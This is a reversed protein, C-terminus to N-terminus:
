CCVIDTEMKSEQIPSDYGMKQARAREKDMYAGRVLKVGVKFGEKSAQDVGNKLFELRDKRYMQITNYVIAQNKNYRRMMETTLGDITDQIWSEEADILIRVNSDYASRCLEDVRMKIRAFEDEESKSLSEGTSAKELTKVRGLGTMKFVCFSVNPNEKAEKITELVEKVAFDFDKETTKGEASYNLISGMNYQALRQATVRCAVMDEGGCFQRYITKKIIGAIPLGIKLSASLILKGEAVLHKAGILSFMARAWSLERDTKSRFAIETNDFSIM